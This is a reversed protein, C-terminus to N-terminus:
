CKPLTFYFTSGKGIESEVWIKGGNKEVFEKCLILGLATGKEGQTGETTYNTNIHFLKKQQEQRIGIGKDGVTITVFNAEEIASITIVGENESFKIANNILNRLIFRFHNLDAYAKVKEDITNLLLLEKAKLMPAFLRANNEIIEHMDIPEAKIVEGKMQSRAWTLLNNLTFDMSSFQRSLEEKIFALENTNLMEPELIDITNRLAAVPNRLDHAIISFLRDKLKNTENLYESQQLIEENQQLIEQNKEEALLQFYETNKIFFSLMQYTSIILVTMLVVINLLAYVFKEASFPVLSYYSLYSYSIIILVGVYIFFLKRTKSTDFVFFIGILVSVWFLEIEPSKLIIIQLLLSLPFYCFIFLRTFHYNKRHNFYIVFVGSLGDLVAFTLGLIDQEISYLTIAFPQVVMLVIGLFNLLRIKRQEYIPMSHNIGINLLKKLM